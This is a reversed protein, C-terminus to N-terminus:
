GGGRTGDYRLFLLTEEGIEKSGCCAPRRGARRPQHKRLVRAVVHAEPALAAALRPHALTAELSRSTPSPRTASSWTTRVPSASSSFHWCTRPLSRPGTTSVRRSRHEQSAGEAGRGLARRIDRESFRAIAGRDRAHGCGRVPRARARRRPDARPDRLTDRPDPGDRAADRRRAARRAHSGERERRHSERWRTAAGSSRSPRSSRRTSPVRSSRIARRPHPGGRRHDRRAAGPDLDAMDVIRLENGEGSQRKGLFEGAGRIQLDRKALDFGDLPKDTGPKKETMAALRDSEDAKASVLICFARQGRRGVRGRLQHLQALGFREAGLIVMMTANPFTSASRSSRRRSSCTSSARRSAGCSM